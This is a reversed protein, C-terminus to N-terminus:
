LPFLTRLSQASQLFRDFGYMDYHTCGAEKALKIAEWQLAYGIMADRNTNSIGGYLYTAMKGYAIMLLGGVPKGELEALLLTLMGTPMLTSALEVFFSLPEVAFNDRRGAESLLPYFIDIIEGASGQRVSVMKRQSLRTNYRGKPKMRAMIRDLPDSLSLYVTESPILDMPSRGFELLMDPVPLPLRPEIRLGIFARKEQSIKECYDILMTLCRLALEDDHWPLVPGEPAVWFASGGGADMFYFLSGAVLNKAEFIGLHLSSIGQQAKFSAWQRSQMFGSAANGKVLDSWDQDIQSGASLDGIVKIELSGSVV